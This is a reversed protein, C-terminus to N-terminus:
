QKEFLREAVLADHWVRHNEDKVWEPHGIEEAAAKVLGLYDVDGYTRFVRKDGQDLLKLMIMTTNM